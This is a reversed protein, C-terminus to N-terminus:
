LTKGNTKHNKKFRSTKNEENNKEKNIDVLKQAHHAFDLNSYADLDHIYLEVEDPFLEDVWIMVNEFHWEVIDQAAQSEEFYCITIGDNHKTEDEDADSTYWEDSLKNEWLLNFITWGVYSVVTCCSDSAHGEILFGNNWIQIKIM